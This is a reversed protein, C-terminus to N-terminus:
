KQKQCPHDHSWDAPYEADPEMSLLKSLAEHYAECVPEKCVVFELTFTTGRGVESEVKIKGGHKEVINRTIALGLGTGRHKTTFFPSFIKSLNEPPIGVGTDRIFIRMAPRPMRRQEESLENTHPAEPVAEQPPWKILQAGITLTGGNPMAQIANLLINLVAQQVQQGDICIPPLDHPCEEAIQVSYKQADPRVLQVMPRMLECLGCPGIEPERLRAFDLLNRLTANLRAIQQRIEVVVEGYKGGGKESEGLVEVAAGIGALPNRIEHAVGAALEGISALRDAQQIQQEHSEQLEHRTAALSDVMANFGLALHSIEDEGQPTARANFDGSRVRGMQDLVASVPQTVLRVILVWLVVGVLAFIVVGYALMLNRSTAISAVLPATSKELVIAGLFPQNGAHCKVCDHLRKIPHMAVALQQGSEERMGHLARGEAFLNDPVKLVARRVDNSETSFVVTGDMAIVQGRFIGQSKKLEKLFPTIEQHRDSLMVGELYQHVLNATVVNETLTRDHWWATQVRIVFYTYIAIVLAVTLGVAVVIKATLSRRLKNRLKFGPSQM